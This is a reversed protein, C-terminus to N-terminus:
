VSALGRMAIDRHWAREWPNNRDADLVIIKTASNSKAMLEVAKDLSLSSHTADIQSAGDADVALLYNCEDIQM